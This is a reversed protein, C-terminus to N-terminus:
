KGFKKALFNAVSVFQTVVFEAESFDIKQGAKVHRAKNSAFGWAKEVSVDLPAPILGKQKQLIQGLTANENGTLCRLVCEVAATAHQIAGTLDPQSKRNLDKLAEQIEQNVIKIKTKSLKFLTYQNSQILKNMTKFVVLIDKKNREVDKTISSLQNAVENNSFMLERMKTFARMIQINVQIAKSSKLVSSLMAVGQETFAYPLYRSGGRGKSTEFHFRLSDLESKSLKFMFDIPFRDLNRKVALNLSKTSVGYLEAIDRDLIVKLDKILYIKSEIVKNSILYNKM